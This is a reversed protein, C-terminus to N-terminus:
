FVLHSPRNSRYRFNIAFTTKHWVSTYALTAISVKTGETVLLEMACAEEFIAGITVTDDVLLVHKNQISKTDKLEFKVEINKSTNL